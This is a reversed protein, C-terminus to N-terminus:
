RAANILMADADYAAVQRDATVIRAPEYSAQAVLMRDFPDAHLPPLDLVRAAHAASVPLEAFGTGIAAELIQGPHFAFDPRGLRKKIAIEWINVASFFVENNPDVLLQAADACLRDPSILAWLLVHTDLLLRM